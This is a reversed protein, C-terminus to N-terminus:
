KSQKTLFQNLMNKKASNNYLMTYLALHADIPRLRHYSCVEPEMGQNKKGVIFCWITMSTNEKRLIQPYFKLIQKIKRILDKHALNIWIKYFFFVSRREAVIFSIMTTLINNEGNKEETLFLRFYPGFGYFNITQFTYSFFIDKGHLLYTDNCHEFRCVSDWIGIMPDPNPNLIFM